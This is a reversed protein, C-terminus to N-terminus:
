KVWLYISVPVEEKPGFKPRSIIDGYGSFDKSVSDGSTGM